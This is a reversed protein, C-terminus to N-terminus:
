LFRKENSSQEGKEKKMQDLLENRLEPCTKELIFNVAASCQDRQEIVVQKAIKTADYLGLQYSVYIVGADVVLFLVVLVAVVWKKM